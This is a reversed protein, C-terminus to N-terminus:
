QNSSDILGYFEYKGDPGDGFRAFTRRWAATGGATECFRTSTTRSRGMDTLMDRLARKSFNAPNGARIHNIDQDLFTHESKLSKRLERQVQLDVVTISFYVSILHSDSDIRGFTAALGQNLPINRIMRMLKGSKYQDSHRYDEYMKRYGAVRAHWQGPNHQNNFPIPCM